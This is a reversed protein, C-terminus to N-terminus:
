LSARFISVIHKVAHPPRHVMRRWGSVLRGQEPTIPVVSILGDPPDPLPRWVLVDLLPLVLGWLHRVFCTRVGKSLIGRRDM